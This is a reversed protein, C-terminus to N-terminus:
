AKELYGNAIARSVRGTLGVEIPKDTGATIFVENNPTPHSPHVEWLVVRKDGKGTAVVKVTNSPPAPKPPDAAQKNTAKKAAAM